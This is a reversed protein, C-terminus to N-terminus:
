LIEAVRLLDRVRQAYAVDVLDERSQTLSRYKIGVDKQAQQVPILKAQHHTLGEALVAQGDAGPVVRVDLRGGEGTFPLSWFERPAKEAALGSVKYALNEPVYAHIHQCYRTGVAPTERWTSRTAGAAPAFRESSDPKPATPVIPFQPYGPTSPDTPPLHHPYHISAGERWVVQGEPHLPPLRDRAGEGEHVGM